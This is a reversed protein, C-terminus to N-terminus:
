KSFKRFLDELDNNYVGEEEEEEEEEEEKV